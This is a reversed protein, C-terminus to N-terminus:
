ARSGTVVSNLGARTLLAFYASDGFARWRAEVGLFILRVDHQAFGEEVLGLAIKHDGLGLRALARHLPPIPQAMHMTEMEDMAAQAKDYQGDMALTHCRFALGETNGMGFRHARDFAKVASAIKGASALAKDHM